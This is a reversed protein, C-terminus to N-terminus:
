IINVIDILPETLKQFVQNLDDTVNEFVSMNEDSQSGLYYNTYEEIACKASFYRVGQIFYPSHTSVLVPVGSKALLVMVKAFEVQWEPHLHNEPEDWILVKNPGIAGIQLLMRILGFSKIGSAVNIPSLELGDKEFLLTYGDDKFIFNGGLVHAVLSEVSDDNAVSAVEHVSRLADIKNMLDEVHSPVMPSNNLNRSSVERYSTAHLLAELLHVYLPSEIYTADEVFDGRSVVVEEVQNDKLKFSMKNDDDDNMRFEVYSNETRASCLKNMFESEIFYQLDATISADRNGKEKICTQITKLDKLMSAIIRPEVNLKEITNKKQLFFEEISEEDTQSISNLDRIFNYPFHPFDRELLLRRTRKYLSNVHKRLLMQSKSTVKEDTNALSKITTFLVKGITSKGSDNEGAIVTLGDLKITAEKIKNINKIHLEM